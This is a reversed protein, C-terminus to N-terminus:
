YLTDTYKMVNTANFAMKVRNVRNKMMFVLM